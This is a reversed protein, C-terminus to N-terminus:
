PFQSAGQPLVLAHHLGPLRIDPLAKIAVLNALDDLLARERLLRFMCSVGRLCLPLSLSLPILSCTVSALLM